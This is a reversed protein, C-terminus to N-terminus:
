SSHRWISTIIWYLTVTKFVSYLKELM